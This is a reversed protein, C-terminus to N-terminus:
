HQQLQSLIKGRCSNLHSHSQLLADHRSQTAWASSPRRMDQMNFLRSGEGAEARRVAGRCEKISWRVCMREWETEEGWGGEEDTSDKKRRWMERVDEAQQTSSERGTMGERIRRDISYVYVHWLLSLQTRRVAWIGTRCILGEHAGFDWMCYRTRWLIM